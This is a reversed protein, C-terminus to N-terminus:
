KEKNLKDIIYDAMSDMEGKSQEHILKPFPNLPIAVLECAITVALAHLLNTLDIACAEIKKQLEWAIFYAVLLPIIVKAIGMVVQKTMSWEKIGKDVYRLVAIAFVGVLLAILIAWASLKQEGQTFLDFRWIIFACPIVCACIAWLAFKLWFNKDM